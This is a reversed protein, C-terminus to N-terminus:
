IISFHMHINLCMRVEYHREMLPFQAESVWQGVMGGDRVWGEPQVGSVAGRKAQRRIMSSGGGGGKAKAARTSKRYCVGGVSTWSDCNTDYLCFRHM